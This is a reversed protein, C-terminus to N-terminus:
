AFKWPSSKKEVLAALFLVRRDLELCIQNHKFTTKNCNCDGRFIVPFNLDMKVKGLCSSEYNQTRLHYIWYDLPSVLNLKVWNQMKM